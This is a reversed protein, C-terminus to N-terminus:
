YNRLSATSTLNVSARYEPRDSPNKHDVILNVQISPMEGSVVLSFILNIVKINDPTLYVSGQSEKKFCIREDCIYFDIFSIEEEEPLYKSTQLSLQGPHSDFICTPTYISEAERIEHTILEMARRTSYLTERMVRAKTNSHISWILFSIIVGAILSLIGIYILIEMLTFGKRSRKNM